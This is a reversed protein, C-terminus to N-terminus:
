ANKSDPIKIFGTLFMLSLIVITAGVIDGIVFRITILPDIVEYTYLYYAGNGVGNVLASVLVFLTVHKWDTNQLVRKSKLDVDLLKFAGWSILIATSSILAGSSTTYELEGIYNTAIFESFYIAPISRGGFFLVPLVRAAHPLFALSGLGQASLNESPVILFIWIVWVLFYFFCTYVSLEFIKPM